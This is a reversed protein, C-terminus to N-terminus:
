VGIVALNSEPEKPKEVCRLVKKGNKSTEAIGYRYPEAVPM